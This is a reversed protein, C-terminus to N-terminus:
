STVSILPALLNFLYGSLTVSGNILVPGRSFLEGIHDYHSYYIHIFIHIIGPISWTGVLAFPGETDISVFLFTM